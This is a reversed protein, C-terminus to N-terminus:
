IPEVSGSTENENEMNMLYEIEENYKDIYEQLDNVIQTKDIKWEEFRGDQFHTTPNGVMKQYDQYEAIKDKLAAIMNARVRSAEYNEWEGNVRLAMEEKLNCNFCTGKLVWMRDDARGRMISGCKPCFFPTKAGQLKSISQKTGNKITWLKGDEEWKEGEKREIKQPTYMSVKLADDKKLRADIKHRVREVASEGEKIIDGM